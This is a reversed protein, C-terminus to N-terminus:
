WPKQNWKVTGCNMDLILTKLARSSRVAAHNVELVAAFYCLLDLLDM